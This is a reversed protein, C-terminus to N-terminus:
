CACAEKALRDILAELGRDCEFLKLIDQRDVQIPLDASINVTVTSFYTKAGDNAEVATSEQVQEHDRVSSTFRAQFMGDATPCGSLDQSLLYGLRLKFRTAM